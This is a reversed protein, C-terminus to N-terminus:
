QSTVAEGSTDVPTEESGPETTAELAEEAEPTEETATDETVAETTTAEEVPTPAPAPEPQGGGDTRPRIGSIAAPPTNQVPLTTETSGSSDAMDASAPQNAAENIRTNVDIQGKDSYGLWTAGGVVLIFVAVVKLWKKSSTKETPESFRTPAKRTPMDAPPTVSAASTRTRRVPKEDASVTRRVARKRPAKNPTETTESSVRPM